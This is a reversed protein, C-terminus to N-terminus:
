AASEPVHAAIRGELSEWPQAEVVPVGYIRAQEQLWRGYLWSWRTTRVQEEPPLDQFGGRSRTRMKELLRREDPEIVFVARVREGAPFGDFAKQAAMEPTLADGELVLPMETAVHHAVVIELARSM